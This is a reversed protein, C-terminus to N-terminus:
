KGNKLRAIIKKGQKDSEGVFRKVIEDIGLGIFFSTWITLGAVTEVGEALRTPATFEIDVFKDSFEQFRAIILALFVLSIILRIVGKLLFKFQFKYPTGTDKKIGQYLNVLFRVIIGTIGVLFLWKFEFPTIGSLLLKTIEEDM